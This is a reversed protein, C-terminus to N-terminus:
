YLGVLEKIKVESYKGCTVCFISLHCYVAGEGKLWMRLFYIGPFSLARTLFSLTITLYLPYQVPIEPLDFVITTVFNKYLIKTCFTQHLLCYNDPCFFENKM